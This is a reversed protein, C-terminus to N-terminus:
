RGGKYDPGSEFVIDKSQPTFSSVMKVTIPEESAVNRVVLVEMVMLNSYRRHSYLSQSVTVSASSLTHTFVGPHCSCATM